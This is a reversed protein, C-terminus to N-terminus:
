AGAVLPARGMRRRLWNISRFVHPRTVIWREVKQKGPFDLLMIGVLIALLGQGPLVLMLVGAVVFLLGLLNRGVLLLLRLGHERDFRLQRRASRRAFYDPPIRVLFWPVAVLTVLLTAVSALAMWWLAVDNNQLWQFM